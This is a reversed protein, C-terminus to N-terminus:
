KKVKRVEEVLPEGDKDFGTIKWTKGARTLTDGAKYKPAAASKAAAGPGGGKGAKELIDGIAKKIPDVEKPRPQVPDWRVTGDKGVTYHGEKGTAPNVGFGTSGPMNITVGGSKAIAEDAETQTIRGAALDAKIKGVTSQATGAESLKKKRVDAEEGPGAINLAQWFGPTRMAVEAEEDSLQAAKPLYQQADMFESTTIVGDKKYKAVVDPPAFQDWGLIGTQAKKTALKLVSKDKAESLAKLGEPTAAFKMFGRPNSELMLRVPESLFPMYDRFKTVLDPKDVFVKFQDGLGPRQENLQQVRVNVFNKRDEGQLNSAWKVSDEIADAEVKFEQLKALKEQRQQELRKNLPSERGQMAAGAESMGSFFKESGTMKAIAQERASPGPPALGIGQQPPVLLPSAPPAAGSDSVLFDENYGPM